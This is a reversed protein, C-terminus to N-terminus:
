TLKRITFDIDFQMTTKSKSVKSSVFSLRSIKLGAIDVYDRMTEIAREQYINKDKFTVLNELLEPAYYIEALQRELSVLKEANTESDKLLRFQQEVKSAKKVLEQSGLYAVAVALAMSLLVVAILVLNLKRPSLRM